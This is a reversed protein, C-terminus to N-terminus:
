GLRGKALLSSAARMIRREHLTDVLVAVASDLEYRRLMAVADLGAGDALLSCQDVFAGSFEM